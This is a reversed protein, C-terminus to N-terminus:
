RGGQSGRLALLVAELAEHVRPEDPALREARRL